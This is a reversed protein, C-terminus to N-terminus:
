IGCVHWLHWPAVYHLSTNIFVSLPGVSAPRAQSGVRGGEMGTVAALGGESLFATCTAPTHCLLLAAGLGAMGVAIEVPLSAKNFAPALGCRHPPLVCVLCAHTHM